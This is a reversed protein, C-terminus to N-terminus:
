VGKVVALPILKAVKKCLGAEILTDVVEAINKYAQPAEDAILKFPINYAINKMKKEFDIQKINKKAQNRSMIRGAGHNVSHFTEENKPLGVMLYSPTGMSGPIIAPHGSKKYFPPNDLHEAPLARTAGKRHVLFWQNKHKEWKAINHAVDYLLKLDTGYNKQFIKRLFYTILSRNCFAFNVCAAMAQFYNKGEASEIPLAALEKKFSFSPYKQRAQWFIETYDLCTQHGLARSGSHIMVCIKNEKIQWLKALFKDYIKDIKQIEIFHNGGGLTGLQKLARKKARKTLCHFDAEKMKGKEEIKELDEKYAYGEKVLYNVGEECIKQLNLIFKQKKNKGIGCPIFKEIQSILNKLKELSFQKQNYDLNSTLLRVGCNIDMGVAGASIIDKTAMVGGIPLGFGQHIDPMAVIPSIVNNLSAADELQQLSLDQRLTKLLSPKAFIFVDAKMLRTKVLQYKNIGAKKLQVMILNYCVYKKSYNSM